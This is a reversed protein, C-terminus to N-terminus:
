SAWEERYDPHDAYAAAMLRLVDFEARDYGIQHWTAAESDDAKVRSTLADIIARKAAVQRLARVPVGCDCQCHEPSVFAHSCDIVHIFRADAAEESLRARMFTILDGAVGGPEAPPLGPAWDPPLPAGDSLLEDLKLVAAVLRAGASEREGSLVPARHWGAAEGRMRALLDDTTPVTM